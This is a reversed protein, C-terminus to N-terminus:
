RSATSVSIIPLRKRWSKIRMAQSASQADAFRACLPPAVIPAHLAGSILRVAYSKSAPTSLHPPCSVPRHLAPTSNM